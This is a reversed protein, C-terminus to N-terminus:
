GHHKRVLAVVQARNEARETTSLSRQRNIFSCPIDKAGVVSCGQRWAWKGIFVVVKPNLLNLWRAFHENLCQKTLIVGPKSDGTTRCRVINCYAIDDLTLGSETLPFHNNQVPWQPIFTRLVTRLEKYRQITPENRLARLATTYPLDEAALSKPTAPNQGVLLVRVKRYNSGIYGPQPVNEGEDRLLNRDTATTCLECAIVRAFEIHRWEAPPNM